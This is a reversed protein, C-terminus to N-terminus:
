CEFCDFSAKIKDGQKTEMLVDGNKVQDGVKVKIEKIQAAGESMITKKNKAEVAGSFSYYTTINGTTAKEEEFDGPGKPTFLMASIIFAAVLGVISWIVIKKKSKKKQKTNM